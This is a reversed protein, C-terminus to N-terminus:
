YIKFFFFFFLFFFVALVSGSTAVPISDRGCSGARQWSRSLWGLRSACGVGTELGAKLRTAAVSPM